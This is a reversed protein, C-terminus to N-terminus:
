LQGGKSSVSHTIDPGRKIHTALYPYEVSGRCISVTRQLHRSPDYMTKCGMREECNNVRVKTLTFTTTRPHIPRINRNTGDKLCIALSSVDIEFM